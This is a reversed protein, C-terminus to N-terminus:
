PQKREPKSDQDNVSRQDELFFDAIDLFTLYADMPTVRGDADFVAVVMKRIKDLKEAELLSLEVAKNWAADDGEIAAISKDYILRLNRTVQDIDSSRPYSLRIAEVQRRLNEAAIEVNRELDAIHERRSPPASKAKPTPPPAIKAKPMPPPNKPVKGGGVKVPHTLMWASAILFVIATLMLAEAEM